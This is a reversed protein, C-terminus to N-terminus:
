GCRTNPLKPQRRSMTRRSLSLSLSLSLGLGPSTRATAPSAPSLIKPGNPFSERESESEVEKEQRSPPSLRARRTASEATQRTCHRRPAAPAGGRWLRFWFRLRLLVSRRQAAGPHARRTAAISAVRSGTAAIRVMWRHPRRLAHPGIWPSGARWRAGWLGASGVGRSTCFAGEALMNSAMDMNPAIGRGIPASM